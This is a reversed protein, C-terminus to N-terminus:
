AARGVDNARGSEEPNRSVSGGYGYLENRLVRWEGGVEWGPEQASRRRM